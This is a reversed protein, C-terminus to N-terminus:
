KGEETLKGRNENGIRALSLERQRTSPPCDCFHLASSLIVGGRLTVSYEIRKECFRCYLQKDDRLEFLEEVLQPGSLPVEFRFVEKKAMMIRRETVTKERM